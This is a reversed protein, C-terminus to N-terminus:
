ITIIIANQLEEPTPIQFYTEMWNFTEASVDFSYTGTKRLNREIVRSRRVEVPINLYHLQPTHGSAIVLDNFNQRQQRTAFGLDLAVESGEHLIRSAMTWIQEECRAIKDLAWQLDPKEPADMWFLNKMWEDITFIHSEKAVIKQAYTTKGAGTSGCIIHATAM